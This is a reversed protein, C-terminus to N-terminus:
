RTLGIPAWTYGITLWVSHSEASDGTEGTEVNEQPEEFEQRRYRYALDVRWRPRGQM